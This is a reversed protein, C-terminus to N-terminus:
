KKLRNNITKKELFKVQDLIEVAPGTILFLPDQQRYTHVQFHGPSLKKRTCKAATKFGKKIAYAPLDALFEVTVYENENTEVIM